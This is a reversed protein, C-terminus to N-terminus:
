TSFLLPSTFHGGGERTRDRHPNASSLVLQSISGDIPVAPQALSLSLFPEFRDIPLLLSLSASLAADATMETFVAAGVEVPRASTASDATSVFAREEAIRAGLVGGVTSMSAKGGVSKVTRASAVTSVFPRVEAIRASRAFAVTCVSVGGEASRASLASGVMSVFAEVEASRAGHLCLVQEHGNKKVEGGEGAVRGNKSVVVRRGTIPDARGDGSQSSSAVFNSGSVTLRRQKEERLVGWDRGQLTYGSRGGVCGGAQDCEGAKVQSLGSESVSRRRKLPLVTKQTRQREEQPRDRAHDHSKQLTSPSPNLRLITNDSQAEEAPRPCLAVSNSQDSFAGEEKAPAKQRESANLSSQGGERGIRRNRTRLEVSTYPCCVSVGSKGQNEDTTESDQVTQAREESFSPCPIESHRSSLGHHQESDSERRPNETETESQRKVHLPLLALQVSEPVGWEVSIGVMEMKEGGRQECVHITNDGREGVSSVEAPPLGGVLRIIRFDGGRMPELCVPNDPDPVETGDGDNPIALLRFKLELVGVGGGEGGAGVGNVFDGSVGVPSEPLNVEVESSVWWPPGCPAPRLSLADGLEWGGVRRGGCHTSERAGGPLRSRNLHKETKDHRKREVHVGFGVFVDHRAGHLCGM